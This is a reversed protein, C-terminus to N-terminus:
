SDSMEAFVRLIAAASREGDQESTAWSSMAARHADRDRVIVVGCDYPVNLWKHADTAWSGALEVGAALERRDESARVWLGFAGDLHLWAGAASTLEGIETLPNYSAAPTRPYSPVRVATEHPNRRYERVPRPPQRTAPQAASDM